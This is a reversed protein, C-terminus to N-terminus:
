DGLATRLATELGDRDDTGIRFKHGNRLDLEVASRGANNYMWGGPIKRIGWGTWWENDVAGVGVVDALEITRHPWGVGFAAIAETPEVTVTLRSANALVVAVIGFTLPIWWEADAAISVVLGGACM